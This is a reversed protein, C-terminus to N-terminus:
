SEFRELNQGKSRVEKSDPQNMDVDDRMSIVAIVQQVGGPRAEEQKRLVGAVNCPGKSQELRM